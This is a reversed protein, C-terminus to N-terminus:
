DYRSGFVHPLVSLFYFWVLLNPSFVCSKNERSIIFYPRFLGKSGKCSERRFTFGLKFWICRSASFLSGLILADFAQFWHRPKRYCFRVRSMQCPCPVRGDGLKSGPNWGFCKCWNWGISSVVLLYFWTHDNLFLLCVSLDMYLLGMLIYFSIFMNSAWRDVITSCVLIGDLVSYMWSSWWLELGRQFFLAVSFRMKFM